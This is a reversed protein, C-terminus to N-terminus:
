RNVIRVLAMRVTGPVVSSRIPARPEMPHVNVLDAAISVAAIATRQVHMMTNRAPFVPVGNTWPIARWGRAVILTRPVRFGTPMVVPVGAFAEGKTARIKAVIRIRYARRVPLLVAWKEVHAM